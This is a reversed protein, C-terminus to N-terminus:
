ASDSGRARDKDNSRDRMEEGDMRVVMVAVKSPEADGHPGRCRRWWLISSHKRLAM